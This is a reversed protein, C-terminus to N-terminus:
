PLLVMKRTERFGNVELSYFYIGATLKSPQWTVRHEGAPKIGDVLVAVERGLMDFIRIKAHGNAKLGYRIETASSVALKSVGGLSIPNPYNQALAYQGPISGTEGSAVSTVTASALIVLGRSHESPDNNPVALLLTDRRTTSAKYIVDVRQTGKPPVTFSAPSITFDKDTVPDSNGDEAVVIGSVVLDATGVNSVTFSRTATGPTSLFDLVGESLNIEPEAIQSTTPFQASPAAWHRIEANVFTSHDRADEAGVATGPVTDTQYIVHIVDNPNRDSVGVFRENEGRTNSLNVPQYWTAGRDSSKAGWIEGRSLPGWTFRQQGLVRSTDQDDFRTYLCYLNGAQDIGIQPQTLWSANGGSWADPPRNERDVVSVGISPSWHKIYFGGEVHDSGGKYLRTTVPNTLTYGFGGPYYSGGRIAIAESWVVHPEGNIYLLDAPGLPRNDAPGNTTFDGYEVFTTDIGKGFSSSDVLIIDFQQPVAAAGEPDGLRPNGTINLGAKWTNGGDDSEFLYFTHGVSGVLIGVKGNDTDSVAMQVGDSRDSDLPFATTNPFLVRYTSWSQGKNTSKWYLINQTVGNLVANNTGATSNNIAVVHYNGQRDVAIDPWLPELRPQALDTKRFVKLASFFGFGPQFDLWSLVGENGVANVHSVPVAVNDAGIALSGFGARESEIPVGQDTFAWATGNFYNYRDRRNAFGPAESINGYIWQTHITGNAPNWIIRNHLNDNTQYNYATRGILTGPGTLAAAKSLVQFNQQAVSENGTIKRNNQLLTTKQKIPVASASRKIMATQQRAKAARDSLLNPNFPSAIRVAVFILAAFTFVSLLKKLM